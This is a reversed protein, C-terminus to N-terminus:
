LCNYAVKHTYPISGLDEIPVLAKLQQARERPRSMELKFAIKLDLNLCRLQIRHMLIVSNMNRGYRSM